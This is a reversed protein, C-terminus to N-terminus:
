KDLNTIIKDYNRFRQYPEKALMKKILVNFKQSANFSKIFDLPEESLINEVIDKKPNTFKPEFPHTNYRILSLLIGLSFVDTRLDIITKNNKLQEPAAFVPTCPGRLNITNTLSKRDLFRAIGLDIIVIDYPSKFLLNDPKIDRHVINNGWIIKFGKLMEKFLKILKEDSDIEHMVDKFDISQIFEEIILFQSSPYDIQFDINKPFYKSDTAKLFNIERSIRELSNISKYMGTKVIVKGYGNFNGTYVKKQGGEKLEQLNKIENLKKEIINM